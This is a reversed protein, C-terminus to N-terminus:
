RHECLFTLLDFFSGVYANLPLGHPVMYTIAHDGYSICDSNSQSLTLSPKSAADVVAVLALM